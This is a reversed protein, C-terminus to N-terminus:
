TYSTSARSHLSPSTRSAKCLPHYALLGIRGAAAQQHAQAMAIQQSALDMPELNAAELAGALCRPSKSDTCRGAANIAGLQRAADVLGAAVM